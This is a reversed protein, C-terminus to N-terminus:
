DKTTKQTYKPATLSKAKEFDKKAHPDAANMLFAQGLRDVATITGDQGFEFEYQTPKTQNQEYSNSAHNNTVTSNGDLGIILTTSIESSTKKTSDASTYKSIFVWATGDTTTFNVTGINSSVSYIPDSQLNLKSAVILPFKADQKTNHYINNADSTNYPEILPQSACSLGHCNETGDDFYTTWYLAPNDMIDNTLNAITNYVKMYMTKNKDPLTGLVAPVTLAAIVGIIGLTILLESLTFGKKIM